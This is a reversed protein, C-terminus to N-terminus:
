GPPNKKRQWPWWWTFWRYWLLFKAASSTAFQHKRAKAIAGPRLRLLMVLFVEVPLFYNSLLAIQLEKRNTRALAAFLALDQTTRALTIAASLNKDDLLDPHSAIMAQYDKSSLCGAKTEYLWQNVLIGYELTPVSNGKGKIQLGVKTNFCIHVHPKDKDDHLSYVKRQGSLILDHYSDICNSMCRKEYALNSARVDVISYGNKFKHVIPNGHLDETPNENAVALQLERISRYTQLNREYYSVLLELNVPWREDNKLHNALLKAFYKRNKNPWHKNCAVALVVHEPFCGM